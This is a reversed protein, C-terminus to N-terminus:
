EGICTSDITLAWHRGKAAVWRTKCKMTNKNQKTELHLRESPGPIQRNAVSSLGQAGPIRRDRGGWHQSLLHRVSAGVPPSVVMQNWPIQCQRRAGMTLAHM